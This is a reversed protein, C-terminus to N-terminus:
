YCPGGEGEGCILHVPEVQFTSHSIGFSESVLRRAAQVLELPQGREQDVVLHAELFVRREDPQWLHVHHVGLVGPLGTLSDIVEELEVNLPAGLMLIRIVPGIQRFAQQLIFAAILLTVLPDVWHWGFLLVLVGALMVGLSGLADAVHHLVAARINLSDRALSLTMFVTLSDVLLAFGAIVVVPWGAIESPTWFRWLGEYVLFIGIIILSTYNILAAILEARAYGFTMGAHSPRRAIRRAALAIVLALADSLNHVADAVLALSGSLLGGVIQVLTLGLNVVVAAMVRRDGAALEGQPFHHHHPHQKEQDDAAM